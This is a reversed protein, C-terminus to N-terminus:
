PSAARQALGLLSADPRDVCFVPVQEMRKSLLGKDTFQRLFDPTSMEGALGQAVSGFLYIGGWANTALVLDGCIRGLVQIFIRQTEGALANSKASQIIEEPPPSISVDAGCMFALLRQLGSGSLLDEVSAFRPNASQCLRFEEITTAALSMHGPECPLAHWGTESQVLLSAGFGTGINIALCSADAGPPTDVHVIPHVEGTQLLPIALASAQVDNYLAVPCGGLQRSIAAGDLVWNTNTVDITNNQVPGAGAIHASACDAQDQFQSLYKHLCDSFQEFECVRYHSRQKLGTRDGRGFRANTGGIDAVLSWPM